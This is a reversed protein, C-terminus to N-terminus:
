EFVGVFIIEPYKIVGLDKKDLQVWKGDVIKMFYEETSTSSLNNIILDDIYSNYGLPITFIIKGHPKLMTYLNEFATIVKSPNKPEEDWGIHELTSISVILDYKDGNNFDCIDENIINEGIEYKDVVDHPINSYHLLVNGVELVEGDCNELLDLIIPIEIARARSGRWTTNYWHYFEKYTQGNFVFTLQKKFYQWKIFEGTYKLTNIIGSNFLAKKVAGFFSLEGIYKNEEM